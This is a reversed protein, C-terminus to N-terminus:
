HLYIIRMPNLVRVALEIVEPSAYYDDSNLIHIWDGTAACVGKNMADYIGQDPESIFFNVKDAYASIVSITGDTSGGDILIYEIRQYTQGLVSEITRRITKASNFSVTVVSVLPLNKM